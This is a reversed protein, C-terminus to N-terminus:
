RWVKLAEERLLQFMRFERRRLEPDMDFYADSYVFGKEKADEASAGYYVSKFKTWYCAGLCMMCPECSTYLVCEKLNDRGIKGCAEQIALLEAQQTLDDNENVQNHVEAIIQGNGVIVAGFSLGSHADRGERAKQIARKMYKEHM